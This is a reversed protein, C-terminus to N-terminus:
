FSFYPIVTVYRSDDINPGSHWTKKWAGYVATFNSAVLPFSKKNEMTDLKIAEVAKPNAKPIPGSANLM